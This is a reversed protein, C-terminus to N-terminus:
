LLAMRCANGLDCLDLSKVRGEPRGYAQGIASDGQWSPSDCQGPACAPAPIARQKNASGAAASGAAAGPGRSNEETAHSAEEEALLTRRSARVIHGLARWVTEGPDLGANPAPGPSEHNHAYPLADCRCSTTVGARSYPYTRWWAPNCGSAEYTLAAREERLAAIVLFKNTVLAKKWVRWQRPKVYGRKMQIRTDDEPELRVDGGQARIRMLLNAVKM